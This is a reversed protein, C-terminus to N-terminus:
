KRQATPNPTSSTDPAVAPNVPTVTSWTAAIAVIALLLAVFIGILTLRKM